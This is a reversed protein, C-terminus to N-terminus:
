KFEVLIDKVLTPYAFGHALNLLSARHFAENYTATGDVPIFVSYGHMFASRATTECCLHTMVGTIVVDRVKRDRLIRELNTQFFADYQHKEVVIGERTLLEPVISSLDSDPHILEKWWSLMQGANAPTNTHRTFVVPRFRTTFMQILSKVKPLIAMASPIFAHSSEQLFYAQMDLVLLAAHEPDINAKGKQRHGSSISTLIENALDTITDSSFYLEKEM